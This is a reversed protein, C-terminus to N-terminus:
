ILQTQDPVIELYVSRVLRASLHILDTLLDTNQICVITQLHFAVQCHKACVIDAMGKFTTPVIHSSFNVTQALEPPCIEVKPLQARECYNALIDFSSFVKEYKTM